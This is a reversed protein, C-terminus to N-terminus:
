RSIAGLVVRVVRIVDPTADGAVVFWAAFPGTNTLKLFVLLKFIAVQAAAVGEEERGKAEALRKKLTTWKPRDM